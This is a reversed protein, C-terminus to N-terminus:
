PVPVPGKFGYAHELRRIIRRAEDFPLTHHAREWTELGEMVLSRRRAPIAPFVETDEIVMHATLTPVLVGLHHHILDLRDPQRRAHSPVVRLLDDHLRRGARHQAILTRVVTRSARTLPFVYREEEREHADEVFVRVLRVAAHLAPWPIARPHNLRQRTADYLRLVRRLIGHERTLEDGPDRCPGVGQPKVRQEAADARRGPRPM